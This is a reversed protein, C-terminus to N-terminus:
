LKCVDLMIYIGCYGHENGKTEYGERRMSRPPKSQSVDEFALIVCLNNDSFKM